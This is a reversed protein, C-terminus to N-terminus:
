GSVLAGAMANRVADWDPTGTFRGQAAPSRGGGRAGHTALPGRVFGGLDFAVADGHRAAFLWGDGERCVVLGFVDPRASLRVSLARITAVDDHPRVLLVPTAASEPHTALATDAVLTVLEKRAAGLAQQTAKAGAQLKAIAAPVDTVGCTFKAALRGLVGDKTRYDDLAHRGAVFRVRLGGGWKETGVVRVLGVQATNTCHTGGCPTWDFGDVEVVRVDETVKPRSRLSMEALEEATPFHVRIPRDERIVANVREECEALADASVDLRDLDLTTSREGLRSSATNAGGWRVLAESLMHQATHEAMQGLRHERDLRGTAAAGAGVDVPEALVHHVVDEVMQTDVVTVSGGGVELVGRDGLQGGGEAYFATRDLVLSPRGGVNSSTVVAADFDFCRSDQLHIRHTSMTPVRGSGSRGDSGPWSMSSAFATSM